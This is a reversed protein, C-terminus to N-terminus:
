GGSGLRLDGATCYRSVVPPDHFRIGSLAALLPFYATARQRMESATQPSRLIPSRHGAPTTDIGPTYSRNGRGTPIHTDARSRRCRLYAPALAGSGPPSPQIALASQDASCSGFWPLAM